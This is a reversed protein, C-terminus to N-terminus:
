IGEREQSIGKAVWYFNKLRFKSDLFYFLIQDDVELQYKLMGKSEEVYVMRGRQVAVNNQNLYQENFFPFGDWVINLNM